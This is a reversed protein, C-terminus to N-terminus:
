RSFYPLVMTNDYRYSKGSELVLRHHRVLFRRTFLYFMVSGALLPHTGRESLTMKVQPDEM